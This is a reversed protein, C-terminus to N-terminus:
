SLFGAKTFVSKVNMIHIIIIIIVRVRYNARTATLDARFTPVYTV